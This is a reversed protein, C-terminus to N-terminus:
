LGEPLISDGHDDTDQGQLTIEIGVAAPEFLEAGFHRKYSLGLLEVLDVAEDDGAALGTREQFQQPILAEFLQLLEDAHLRGEAGAGARDQQGSFDFIRLLGAEACDVDGDAAVGVSALEVTGDAFAFKEARPVVFECLGWQLHNEDAGRFDFADARGDFDDGGFAGVWDRDPLSSCHSCGEM